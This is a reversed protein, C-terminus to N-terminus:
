GRAISSFERRVALDKKLFDVVGNMTGHGTGTGLIFLSGDAVRVLFGDNDLGRLEAGVLNLARRCCGIWVQGSESQTRSERVM